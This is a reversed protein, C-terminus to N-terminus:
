SIPGTTQVLISRTINLRLLWWFLASHRWLLLFDHLFLRQKASKFTIQFNSNNPKWIDTFTGQKIYQRFHPNWCLIEREARNIWVRGAHVNGIFPEPPETIQVLWFRFYRGKELNTINSAQHLSSSFSLTKSIGEQRVDHSHITNEMHTPCKIISINHVNLITHIWHLVQLNNMSLQSGFIYLPTLILNLRDFLLIATPTHLLFGLIVQCTCFFHKLPKLRSFIYPKSIPANFLNIPQIVHLKDCRLRHYIQHIHTLLIVLPLLIFPQWLDMSPDLLMTSVGYNWKRTCQFLGQKVHWLILLLRVAFFM